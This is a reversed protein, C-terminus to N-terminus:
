GNLAGEKRKMGWQELWSITKERHWLWLTLWPQPGETARVLGCTHSVPSPNGKPTRLGLDKLAKGVTNRTEGVFEKALATMNCFENM